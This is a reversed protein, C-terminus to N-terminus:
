HRWAPPPLSVLRRGSTTIVDLHSIQEPPIATTGTVDVAGRYDATWTAATDQRGDVASVVLVCRQPRGVSSLRLRIQTGWTHAALTVSAHMHTQPDTASATASEVVSPVQNHVVEGALVGAVLVAAAVSTVFLRKRTHGQRRASAQAILAECLEEPLETPAVIDEVDAMTLTRLLAPLGRLEDYKLRCDSCGPLHERMWDTEPPELADLVYIAVDIEHPCSV